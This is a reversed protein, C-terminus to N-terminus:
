PELTVEVLRSTTGRLDQIVDVKGSAGTGYLSNFTARAFDPTTGVFAYFNRGTNLYGNCLYQANAVNPKIYCGLHFRTGPIPRRSADMLPGDLSQTSWQPTNPLTFGYGHSAVFTFTQTTAIRDGCGTLGVAVAACTTAALTLRRGAVM